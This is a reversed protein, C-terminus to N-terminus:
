MVDAYVTHEGSVAMVFPDKVAALFDDDVARERGGARAVMAMREVRLSADRMKLYALLQPAGPLAGIKWGRGDFGGHLPDLFRRIAEETRRQTEYVDEMSRCRLWIRVSFRLFHPQCLVLTKGLPVLGGAGTLADRVTDKVASFIHSGKEYEDILLAVTVTDPAPAGTRDVGSCCKIQRVGCGLQSIIDFYDRESVARGRTRLLTSVQRAAEEEGAEGTGGYAAMPNEVGSIYRIPQAMTHIAGAPVNGQAGRYSQYEVRVAAAGEPPEYVSFTHRDFSVAGAAADLEYFRGRQAAYTRRTWLVWHDAGDQAGDAENVYVKATLIHSEALQFRAPAKPDDVYFEETRSACNEVRAMNTFIGRIVPLGARASLDDACVLRLWYRDKGYLAAHSVDAPVLALMAGSYLLGETGDQVQVPQFGGPSLYELAYDLPADENNEVEFYLSLPSGAPPADFGLYLCAGRRESSTFLAAARARSWLALVDRRAFNNDTYAACPALPKEDYSYSFRLGEIFPIHQRCPLQYLGDARLMRLRLRCEGALEGAPAMDGPCPFALEVHGQASGNFLLAAHEDEILRKWGRASLYEILVYDPQVDRTQPRPAPATKKMIVKYDVDSALEPLTQELTEFRVDFAMKVQAGPRAFVEACEVGCEAYLELPSGFPAFHRPAQSVGNCRVEDPLLGERSFRLRAGTLALDMPGKAEACLFFRRAGDATQARMAGEELSFWVTDGEARVPALARREEEGEGPIYFTVEDGALRAAAAAAEDPDATSVQLGVEGASFGELGRDFALTLVHHAESARQPDFPTFRCSRADQGDLVTVIRDSAQEATVVANLEAASATIGECTEFVLAPGGDGSDALLQTKRPVYVPADAGAVPTFRVYSRAAHVPDPRLRDFLNLYHIKHMRLVDDFRRESDAQMEELLLAAVSGVDPDDPAFRWQPVYARALAELRARLRAKDAQKM